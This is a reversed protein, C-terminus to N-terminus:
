FNFLRPVRIDMPEIDDPSPRGVSQYEFLEVETSANLHPRYDKIKNIRYYSGDLYVLKQMDLTSIDFNTLNLFVKKLRPKQRLQNIMKQYFHYYLGKLKYEDASVTNNTYLVDNFSLNPDIKVETGNYTGISLKIPDQAAAQTDDYPINDCHFFNARCFYFQFANSTEINGDTHYSYGTAHNGLETGYYRVNGDDVPVTILVRAGFDYRKEAREVNLIPNIVSYDSHIIPIFPKRLVSHGASQDIYDLEYYNFTPSFYPNEIKLQGTDFIGTNDTISISGWDIDNRKNYRELFADSSPEKYGIVVNSKMDYLFEETSTKSYDIKETWNVAESTSKYFYDYPEITIVKSQADTVFQLNFMQAVGSVFESQKGKPVFYNIDSMDEGVAITNLGAVTMTGGLYGFDVTDGSAGSGSTKRRVNICFIYKKGVGTVETSGEYNVTVDAPNSTDSYFIMDTHWIRKYGNSNFTGDKVALHIEKSDFRDTDEVEWVEGQAYFQYGNTNANRFYRVDINWTVTHVGTENVCVACLESASIGQVNGNTHDPNQVDADDLFQDGKFIYRAYIADGSTLSVGSITDSVAGSKRFVEVNGMAGLVSAPTTATHFYSALQVYTEDKSFSGYKTNVQEGAKQFYFPVILSKFYDSNCFESEVVYGQAKFIKDWINKLYFCPVFDADTVQNRSSVGEGVSILPYHLKDRGASFQEYDRANGALGQVNAFTYTGEDEASAPYDAFVYSNNSFSLDKLDLTKIKSAWDVNDGLFNCEYELVEKQKLIKQIKLTGSVIPVNDVYITSFISKRVNDEDKLGTKHIQKFIKNNNRTAPVKFTKSFSGNRSSLDRMDFHQYSISLPFNESSRIDLDGVIGANVDQLQVKVEAM